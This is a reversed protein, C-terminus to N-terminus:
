GCKSWGCSICTPCGSEYRFSHGSCNPCAKGSVQTGDIIYKKLIRSFVKTDTFINEESKSMQEVIYQVPVNHRLMLSILRTQKSINEDSKSGINEFISGDSSIFDYVTVKGADTKMRRKVINGSKSQGIWGKLDMCCFIEYPRDDVHGVFVTYKNKNIRTHYVDCPISEPRKKADNKDSKKESSSKDVGSLKDEVQRIYDLHSQPMVSENKRAIRVTHRLEEDPIGAIRKNFDFKGGGDTILVGDRSGDRYVTFGKCGSKWAQMYVNSILEHSASKPLNCTKSIAHDIWHQAAAQIKVSAVWDIDGSTSGEYPNQVRVDEPTALWKAYGHHYVKYEHWKDGVADIFDVRTENDTQTIKRRRTYEYMFAPECGSTTQTIMSLSGVPATTLCAINRRGYKKYKEVIKAPLCSLIQQIFEHDHELDYNWDPFCGRHEAMNISEEYANIALLKYVWDTFTISEESGYKLGLQAIADGLGTLGLGTRRGRWNMERIKQWLKLERDKVDAPERDSKVKNIIKDIMEIELDILNDMLGQAIKVDRSFSEEDFSASTTYPNKVYKTLNIVMLRCADYKSLPIEGCQKSAIFLRAPNNFGDLKEEGLAICLTHDEDVTGNYVDEYGCLEVSLVRHNHFKAQECIDNYNKFGYKTGTRYPIKNEKCATIVESQLPQRGLTSRLSTFVDLIKKKRTEARESFLKQISIARAVNKGEKRNVYFNACSHGCFAIERNGWSKVYDKNCWECQRVVVVENDVIDAIYGQSRAKDLTRLLRADVDVHSFGFSSAIKKTIELFNVGGCRWKNPWVPLKHETAYGIWDVHTIRRGLKKTLSVLHENFEDPTVDYAHPNCIGSVERHEARWSKSNCDKIWGYDQTETTDFHPLVESFKAAVRYGIWLQDGNVIQDVRKTSGDRMIMQHNGTAKFSHGGEVTVRYVPLATGTKRPNRMKRVVMKGTKNNYAYVLLDDGADALEKIPVAVRGDPVAIKVDGTLCPNTAITRFDPYCDAPSRRTITDWFLAGPEASDWAADIFQDWVDRAPKTVSYKATEPTAEVPWHFTYLEDNEVARMFSDTFKLSINAGTVKLRDRKINIFTEVEPHTANMCIMLAGRRGGQAVERCTDSFREMFVSIGDTTVAANTTPQNKPRIGSIDLGVGGRRKMIQAEEEDAKFIAGYSDHEEDPVGEIVFCNSLSQVKYDNGIGACPSGQPLIERNYFKSYFEDYFTKYVAEEDIHIGKERSIKKAYYMEARAFERALRQFMQDPTAELLEGDKNRLAYKTLFVDVAAKDDGFFQSSLERAEELTYTKMYTGKKRCSKLSTFWLTTVQGLIM